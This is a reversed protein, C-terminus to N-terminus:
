GEQQLNGDMKKGKNILSLKKKTEDSHKRGKWVDGNNFDKFYSQRWGSEYNVM